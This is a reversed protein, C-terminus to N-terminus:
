QVVLSVAHSLSIITMAYLTLSAGTCMKFLTKPKV